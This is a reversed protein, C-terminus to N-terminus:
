ALQNQNENNSRRTIKVQSILEAKRGEILKNDLYFSGSCVLWLTKDLEFPSVDLVDSMELMTEFVDVPSKSCFGLESFNEIMHSDPKAYGQYGLEKLADCALAFGLGRIKTSLYLPLAVKTATSRQFYDVFSLFGEIDDFSSLFRASDIM